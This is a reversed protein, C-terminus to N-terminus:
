TASGTVIADLRQQSEAATIRAMGAPAQRSAGYELSLIYPADNSIVVPAGLPVVGVPDRAWQARANGKDFPTRERVAALIDTAFADLIQETRHKIFLKVEGFSKFEAM